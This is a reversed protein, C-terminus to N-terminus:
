RYNRFSFRKVLRINTRFRELRMNGIERLSGQNTMQTVMQDLILKDPDSADVARAYDTFFKVFLTEAAATSTTEFIDGSKNPLGTLIALLIMAACYDEIESTKRLQFESHTRIIRYINVYRKITRPSQGILFGILKMFEIEAATVKLLTQDIVPEKEKNSGSQQTEGTPNGSNQKAAQDFAARARNALGANSASGTQDDQQQNKQEGVPKPEFQSQILRNKGVDDMQKLVFPIQFIKELYDFSTAPAVEEESKEDDSILEKYRRNLAYHMWRPDVGVVVVFLPFALLLHIAELVRVVISVDCRDLDDIYLIIRDIEFVGEVKERKLEELRKADYQQKLLFDL